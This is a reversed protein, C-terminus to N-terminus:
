DERSDKLKEGAIFTKLALKFMLTLWYCNLLFVMLLLFFFIVWDIPHKQALETVEFWCPYLVKRPYVIIRTFVWSIIMSGFLLNAFLDLKLYNGMKAGELLIDNFDHLALLVGGIRFVNYYYSFGILFASIIHHVLMQVFDKRRVEITVHAIFSHMYFALQTFYFMKFSYSMPVNPWGVWCLETNWFFDERLVVNVGWWWVVSYYVFKWASESFKKKKDFTPLSKSNSVLVQVLYQFSYRAITFFIILATVIVANDAGRSLSDM